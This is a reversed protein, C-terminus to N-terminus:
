RKRVKGLREPAVETYFNMLKERHDVDVAVVPTAMAVGPTMLGSRAALKAGFGSVGTPKAGFSSVESAPKAGFGSSAGMPSGNAGRKVM